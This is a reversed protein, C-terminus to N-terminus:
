VIRRAGDSPAVTFTNPKTFGSSAFTSELEGRAVEVLDGPLIGLAAGGFGGGTMRAGLAGAGVLTDVALDLEPCSAEFDDRISRHAAVLLDGVRRWDGKGLAGTMEIVRHNETVVHRVRQRVREDDIRDLAEELGPYEIERLSGLELRRAALECDARRAVYEGGAHAHRVRTDVVLIALGAADPDFPIQRTSDAATDYLLAHGATCLLSAMQDMSGTPAGVYENEARRTRRALEPRDFGMELLDNMGLAIACTLAASSSLGSGVPVESTVAIDFGVGSDLAWLVGAVYSGWGAPRGPHLEAVNIEVVEGPEQASCARLVGDDRVSIAAETREALAFPLVLGGNYDTHEGILNV